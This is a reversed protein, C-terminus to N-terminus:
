SAKKPRLLGAERYAAAAELVFRANEPAGYKKSLEASITSLQEYTSHRPRLASYIELLRENPISVLESARRLNSALRVYGAREAVRAQTRLTDSHISLDDSKIGGRRLSDLRIDEYRLGTKSKLHSPRRAVPYEPRPDKRGKM